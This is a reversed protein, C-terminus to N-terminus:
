KSRAVEIGLFYKLGRLDKMDFKSTLYTKLKTLENIDNGTVIMDDVYIILITIMNKMALQFREFWARPLQKLEYLTKKLKYVLSIDSSFNYGLPM